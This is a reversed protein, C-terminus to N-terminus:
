SCSEMKGNRNQRIFQGDSFIYHAVFPFSGKYIVDFSQGKRINAIEGTTSIVKSGDEESGENDHHLYITGLNKPGSEDLETLTAWACTDGASTGSGAAYLVKGDVFKDSVYFHNVAGHMGTQVFKLDAKKISFTDNRRTLYHAAIRGETQAGFDVAEGDSLLVPGFKTEVLMAPMYRYTTGGPHDTITASGSKGFAARFAEALEAQSGKSGAEHTPRGPTSHPSLSAESTNVNEAGDGGQQCGSAAFLVLAGFAGGTLGRPQPRFSVSTPAAYVM